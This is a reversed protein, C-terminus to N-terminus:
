ASTLASRAALASIERALEVDHNTIGGADHTALEIKVTGYVNFWEPHHNMREAVLAVATMFSFATVFDAFKLTRALKDGARTWGPLDRLAAAIDADSLKTM